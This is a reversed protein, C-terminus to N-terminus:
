ECASAYYWGATYDVGEIFTEAYMYNRFDCITSFVMQFTKMDGGCLTQTGGCSDDVQQDCWGSRVFRADLWVEQYYGGFELGAPLWTTAAAYQSDPFNRLAFGYHGQQDMYRVESCYEAHAQSASGVFSLGVAMATIIILKNM